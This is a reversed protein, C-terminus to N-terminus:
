LWELSGDDGHCVMCSGLYVQEGTVPNASVTNMLSTMLMFIIASQVVYIRQQLAYVFLLQRKFIM